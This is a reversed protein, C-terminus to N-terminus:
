LMDKTVIRLAKSSTTTKTKASGSRLKDFNIFQLKIDKFPTTPPLQCFEDNKPATKQFQSKLNELQSDQEFDQSYEDEDKEIQSLEKKDKKILQTERLSLSNLLEDLKKDDQIRKQRIQETSVWKRDISSRLINPFRAPNMEEHDGRVSKRNLKTYYDQEILRKEEKNVAIEYDM